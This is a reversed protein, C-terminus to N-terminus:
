HSSRSLNPPYDKEAPEQFELLVYGLELFSLDPSPRWHWSTSESWMQLAIGPSKRELKHNLLSAPCEEQSFQRSM